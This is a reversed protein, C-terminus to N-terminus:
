STLFGQMKKSRITSYIAFTPTHHLPLVSAESEEPTLEIRVVGALSAVASYIRPKKLKHMGVSLFFRSSLRNKSKDTCIM